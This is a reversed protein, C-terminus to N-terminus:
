DKKEENFCFGFNQYLFEIFKIKELLLEKCEDADERFIREKHAVKNRKNKIKYLNRAFNKIIEDCNNVNNAICFKKFDRKAIYNDDNQNDEFYNKRAICYLADGCECRDIFDKIKGDELFNKAIDYNTLDSRNRLYNLYKDVVIDYLLSEVAKMIPMLSASYDMVVNTDVLYSYIDLSTIIYIKINNNMKDITDSSFYEKLLDEKEESTKEKSLAINKDCEKIWEDITKDLSGYQVGEFVRKTADDKIEDVIKKLIDTVKRSDIAIKKAAEYLGKDFLYHYMYSYALSKNAIHVSLTPKVKKYDIEISIAKQFYTNALDYNDEDLYYKELLAASQISNYELAKNAYNVFKDTDGASHFLNSLSQYCVRIKNICDNYLNANINNILNSARKFYKIAEIFKDKVYNVDEKKYDEEQWLVGIIYKKQMLFLQAEYIKNEGFIFLIASKTSIDLDNVKKESKKQLELLEQLIKEDPLEGPVINNCFETYKDRLKEILNNNM